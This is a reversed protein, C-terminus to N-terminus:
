DNKPKIHLFRMLVYKLTSPKKKFATWIMNFTYPIRVHKIAEASGRIAYMCLEPTQNIVYKLSSPHYLVSTFCIHFSQDEEKILRLAGHYELVAYYRIEETQNVVYKLLYGCEKVAAICIKETQYKPDLRALIFPNYTVAAIFEEETPNEKECVEWHKNAEAYDYKSTKEFM